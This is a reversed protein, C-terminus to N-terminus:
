GRMMIHQNTWEMCAKLADDVFLSVFGSRCPQLDRVLLLESVRELGSIKFLRAREGLVDEAIRSCLNERAKSRSEGDMLQKRADNLAAQGAVLVAPVLEAGGSGKGERKRM